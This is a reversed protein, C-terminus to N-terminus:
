SGFLFKYGNYSESTLLGNKIRSRPIQLAKSCESISSFFLKNNFKDIAIISLDKAVLKDTGRVFRIGNKIEYPAPLSFLDSIKKQIFSETNEFVVPGNGISKYTSLRYNNMRSKIKEILSIGEPITHYGYYNVNVLISWDNFDKVKKSQLPNFDTIDRTERRAGLLPNDGRRPSSFLPLILNKLTQIKYIELVVTANSNPRDKRKPTITLNGASLYEKIKQFLILEKIHNEFKLRPKYNNSSFSGDGDIFGGLWYDSICITHNVKPCPSINEIKMENYYKIIDLRGQSSLHNKNRLLNIAKEFILFQFYKSSNLKVHSFIPQIVYILSTQDNVFFNCRSGSVSIHGCKLKAQIFKLLDLNDIHLGIQFTLLLSNYKNEKFNRLSINFNGEADTFGALWELFNQDLYYMKNNLNILLKDSKRTLYQSYLAPFRLTLTKHMFKIRIMNRLHIKKARVSFKDKFLITPAVIFGHFGTGFYFCSGFAGDSLTFSSVSYEVGQFITFVVALLITAILGYIVGARNGQILSHHAYTVTIGSSLLIVTNLLPLEFPNIANVGLPPWQAGLEVTPSLASM